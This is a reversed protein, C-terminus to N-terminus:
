RREKEDDPTIVESNELPVVLAMVLYAIVSAGTVCISVVAIVRVIVVKANKL